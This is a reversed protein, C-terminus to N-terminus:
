DVARSVLEGGRAIEIVTAGALPLLIATGPGIGLQRTWEFRALATLRATPGGSRDLSPYYRHDM